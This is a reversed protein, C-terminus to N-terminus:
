QERLSVAPDVRIARVAPIACAGIASAGLIIVTLVYTAPDALGVGFLMSRIAGSALWAGVLGFLIGAAVPRLGDGLVMGVIRPTRAGLAMRVGIEKTRQTVSYALVGYVGLAALFMAIGAFAALLTSRFLQDGAAQRVLDDLLKVNTPVLDRDVAHVERRAAAILMVPDNNSRVVFTIGGNTQQRLPTWAEPQVPIDLGDQRSDAVVGVVTVWPDTDTPKGYRLRKGLADNGRLYVRALTQNVIAVPPSKATDFENFTRGEVLPIQMAAFYGPTAVDHRLEREYDRGGRGEITADTSWSFGRLPLTTAAGVARVGPLARLHSEIEEIARIARADDAYRAYPFNVTFSLAGDSRFGPDVSELLILSRVLLGAGVVLVVSLAVECTVLLDRLNGRGRPASEGRDRLVEPRSAVVAPVIGFLLPAALAIGSNFLIVWWDVRLEAFGPLVSPALRVLATRAAIALALGLVGGALSLVASETLLQRIIRARDAGLSRRIGLERERATARGLQLNAVNSCVILLLLGVAALLMLLAPRSESALTAHYNDLRVGMKTNTDPYDRELRAAIATMEGQARDMSIGPRLRAIVRLMHPRRIRTFFDPKVGFPIYMQVEHNPFFFQRPMVGIVEFNRGNLTMTRGIVRPDGAFQSQWFGYTLVAVHNHGDYTEEEAFTRGLLPPVGLVDFINGTVGLGTIRQPEDVATLYLDFKSNRNDDLGVYAAMGSFVTNTHRWDAYNAPACISHTWRKLPNTETIEVLREPQPYPLARLLVAQVVTFIATNAGIGLALTAIAVTAFAPNRRLARLAYQVDQALTEFFPIGRRDRYAEKMAEVGGFKLRAARRAEQLTMGSRINDEIHMSFHSEIEADLDRERRSKAFLSGFRVALARLGRM